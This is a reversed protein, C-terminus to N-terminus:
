NDKYNKESYKKRLYWNLKVVGKLSNLKTKSIFFLKLINKQKRSLGLKNSTENIIYSFEGTGISNNAYLGVLNFFWQQLNDRNMALIEPPMELHISDLFVPISNFVNQNFDKTRPNNSSARRYVCDVETFIMFKPQLRSLLKINFEVDQFRSLDENFSLKDKILATRYLTRQLNWPLRGKGIFENLATEWNSVIVDPTDDNTFGENNYIEMSFVVFDLSSKEIAEVRGQLCDKLMLDDSDFFQIYTGKAISLGYNRCANAGKKLQSPRKHLSFKENSAVFEHLVQFDKVDSGDDVVICEWQTYSQKAVSKLTEVALKAKNFTPIIISVLANNM